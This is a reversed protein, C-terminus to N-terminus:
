ASFPQCLTPKGSTGFYSGYSDYDDGGVKDSSNTLLCYKIDKNTPDGTNLAIYHYFDPGNTAKPGQFTFSIRQSGNISRDDLAFVYSGNGTNANAAAVNPYLSMMVKTGSYIKGHLFYNSDMEDYPGHLQLTHWKNNSPSGFTIVMGDNVGLLKTGSKPLGKADADEFTVPVAPLHGYTSPMTPDMAFAYQKGSKSLVNVIFFQGKLSNSLEMSTGVKHVCHDYWQAIPAVEPLRSLKDQLETLDVPDTTHGVVETTDEAARVTVWGGPVLGIVMTAVLIWTVLRSLTRNRNM